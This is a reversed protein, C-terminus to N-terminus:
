IKMIYCLAYYPPMNNHAAGGGASDTSDVVQPLSKNNAGYVDLGTDSGTDNRDFQHRLYAHQHTPIEEITLIHEVEGGYAGVNYNNGAGLVFKDTLDPTGNDGNCLMWGYPIDTQAGSWIMIMGAPIVSIVNIQQQLDSLIDSLGAIETYYYGPKEAYINGFFPLNDYPEVGNGIKLKLGGDNTDVLIIEGSLLIPNNTSWNEETDRKHM